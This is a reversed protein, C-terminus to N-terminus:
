RARRGLVLIVIGALGMAMSGPEPSNVTYDAVVPLHDSATTLDAYLQSATISPNAILDNLATNSSSNVSHGEGVSGNNGFPHLSGSVYQLGGGPNYVNSTMLQLDDRFRLNTSSETLIAKFASNNDWVENNNQPNTNLPDIAQVKGAATM